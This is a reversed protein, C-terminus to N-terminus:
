REEEQPYEEAGHGASAVPRQARDAGEVFGRLDRPPSLTCSPGTSREHLVLLYSFALTRCTVRVRAHV